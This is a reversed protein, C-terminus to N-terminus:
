IPKSSGRHGEYAEGDPPKFLFSLNQPQIGASSKEPKHFSLFLLSNESLAGELKKKKKKKQSLTRNELCCVIKMLRSQVGKIKQDEM